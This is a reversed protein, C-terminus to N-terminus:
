RVGLLRYATFFAIGGAYGPVLTGFRALLVCNAIGLLTLYFVAGVRIELAGPLLPDLLYRVLAAGTSVVVAFTFSWRRRAREFLAGRFFCEAALVNAGVDYGLAAVVRDLDDVHPRHGLTRLASLLVHAGLLTGVALGVFLAHVPVRGGLPLGPLHGRWALAFVWAVPGAYVLGAVGGRSGVLVALALLAVAVAAPWCAPRDDRGRAAGWALATALLTGQAAILTAARPAEDGLLGVARLVTALGVMALLAAILGIPTDARLPRPPPPSHQLAWM